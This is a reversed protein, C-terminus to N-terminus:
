SINIMDLEQNYKLIIIFTPIFIIMKVKLKIKKRGGMLGIKNGLSTLFMSNLLQPKILM